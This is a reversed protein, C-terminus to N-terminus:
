RNKLGARIGIGGGRGIQYAKPPGLIESLIIGEELKDRYFVIPERETKEVPESPLQLKAPQTLELKADEEAPKWIKEQKGPRPKQPKPLPVTEEPLPFGLTQFLERVKGEGSKKQQQEQQEQLVKSLKHFVIILILFLFLQWM